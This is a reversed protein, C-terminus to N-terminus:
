ALFSFLRNITMSTPQLWNVENCLVPVVDDRSEILGIYSYLIIRSHAWLTNHRISSELPRGVRGSVTLRCAM